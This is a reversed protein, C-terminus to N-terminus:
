FVRGTDIDKIRLRERDSWPIFVRIWGIAFAIVSAPVPSLGCVIASLTRIFTGSSVSSLRRSIAFTTFFFKPFFGLDRHSIHSSVIMFRNFSSFTLFFDRFVFCFRIFSIELFGNIFTVLFYFFFCFCFFSINHFYLSRNESQIGIISGVLREEYLFLPKIQYVEM